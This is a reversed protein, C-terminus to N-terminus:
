SVTACPEACLSNKWVVNWQLLDEPSGQQFQEQWCGSGETAKHLQM